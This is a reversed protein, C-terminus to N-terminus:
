QARELLDALDALHESLQDETFTYAPALMLRDPFHILHLGKEHLSEQSVPSHLDVAGLLGLVRTEKVIPFEAIALFFDHFIKTMAKLHLQFEQDNLLDLVGEMAALGLPHAYSTLGQSLVLDHDYTKAHREAVWLAGFPVMGGTIAKALCVMDPKLNFLATGTPAGLRHFACIVEDAILMLKFEDCLAQIGSWWKQDPIIVGNGGTVTELCFGCINEVGTKLIIERTKSLDPDDAPEPIRVTWEDVTFHLPNRWDGTISLAGLSAGHYSRQRCLIIKKQTLQRAMKLANEVSEAGSLTYFLRGAEPLDLYDLLRQSARTKLEFVAKPNAVCFLRTQEIIKNALYDHHHGFAAQYSISSLDALWKEDETLFYPGEVTSMTLDPKQDVQKSWTKFYTKAM